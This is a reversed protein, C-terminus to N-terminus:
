RLYRRWGERLSLAPIGGRSTFPNPGKPSVNPQALLGADLLPVTDIM